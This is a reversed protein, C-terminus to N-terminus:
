SVASYVASFIEILLNKDHEEDEVELRFTVLEGNLFLSLYYNRSLTSTLCLVCCYYKKQKKYNGM